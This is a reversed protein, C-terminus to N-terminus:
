EDEITEPEPTGAAEFEDDDGGGPVEALIREEEIEADFEPSLINRRKFEQWLTQTSLKGRENMTLLTEPAKDEGLEIAFDTNVYVTPELKVNIWMSTFVFARELCDKLMFAWAQVASASKQSAFAAAVQTIGSTGATLPQRGLERMQKETKDIEESLFKLSTASPEIFQWQGHSSGDGNPPAYLVVSPGIPAIIPKGHEDVPPSIGNGALMPFATLEKASKLNTEQQYHEIQLDAVNRMPPRIRWTSGDRRGTFFPVLAIVGISIPGEDEKTWGTNTGTTKEWIEYRAPGYQGGELEDRILVRVREVTKENGAADRRTVPEFIKAYVFEEKGNIIASEVWLMDLAPIRVWYPRAGMRKEDALTAGQPVPPYDILVWDIANHIGHFFVADAFVHLHNGAGDTDEVVTKIIEPVTDNALSVEKSFPKSALNEIIDSYIDTFKSNELRYTYNTATENPFQPLFLKGGDRMASVGGRIAAVKTWYPLMAQYDASTALYDTDAM